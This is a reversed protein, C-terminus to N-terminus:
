AHQMPRTDRVRVEERVVNQPVPQVLYERVVNETPQAEEAPINEITDHLPTRQITLPQLRQSSQLAQSTGRKQKKSGCGFLDLIEDFLGPSKQRHPPLTEYIPQSTTAVPITSSAM